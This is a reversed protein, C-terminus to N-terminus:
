VHIYNQEIYHVPYNLIFFKRINMCISYIVALETM